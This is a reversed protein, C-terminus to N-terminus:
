ARLSAVPTPILLLYVMSACPTGILLRIMRHHVIIAFYCEIISLDECAFSEDIQVAKVQLGASERGPFPNVERSSRQWEALGLRDGAEKRLASHVINSLPSAVELIRIGTPCLVFHAM